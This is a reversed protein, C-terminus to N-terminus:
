AAPPQCVGGNWGLTAGDHSSASSETGGHIAAGRIEFTGGMPVLDEAGSIACRVDTVLMSHYAVMMRGSESMITPPPVEEQECVESVGFVVNPPM